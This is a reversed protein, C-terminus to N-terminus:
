DIFLTQSPVPEQLHLRPPTWAQKELVSRKKEGEEEGQSFNSRPLTQM